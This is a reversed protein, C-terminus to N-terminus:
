EEVWEVLGRLPGSAFRRLDGEGLSGSIRVIREGLRSGDLLLGREADYVLMREGVEAYTKRAALLNLRRSLRPGMRVHFRRCLSHLDMAAIPRPDPDACALYLAAVEEAVGRGEVYLTSGEGFLRQTQAIFYMFCEADPMSVRWHPGDFDPGLRRSLPVHRYGM